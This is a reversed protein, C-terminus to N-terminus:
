GPQGTGGPHRAQSSKAEEETSDQLVARDMGTGMLWIHSIIDLNILTFYLNFHVEETGSPRM